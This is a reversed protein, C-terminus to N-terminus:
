LVDSIEPSLIILLATVNIRSAIVNIRAPQARLAAGGSEEAGLAPDAVAGAALGLGEAFSGAM